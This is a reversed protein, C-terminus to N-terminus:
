LISVYYFVLKSLPSSASICMRINCMLLTEQCNWDCLADNRLHTVLLKTHLEIYNYHTYVNNM